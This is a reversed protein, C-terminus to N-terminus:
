YAARRAAPRRVVAMRRHACLRGSQRPRASNRARGRRSHRTSKDLGAEALSRRAVGVKAHVFKARIITGGCNDRVHGSHFVTRVHWIIDRLQRGAKCGLRPVASLDSRESRSSHFLRLRRLSAPRQRCGERSPFRRSTNMRKKTHLRVDAVLL